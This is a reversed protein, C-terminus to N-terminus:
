QYGFTVAYDCLADSFDGQVGEPLPDDLSAPKARYPRLAPSKLFGPDNGYRARNPGECAFPSAEPHMMRAICEDDGRLGLWETIAGLTSVPEALLTEGQIRMWRAAPLGDLFQVIRRHPRLWARDPDIGFAMPQGDAQRIYRQLGVMSHCTAWPHRTLHLYDAAPFAEHIRELAHEEIVYIPSKDVLRRQGAWDMLDRYVGATAAEEQENLWRDAAAIDADAQGGLGLQAVARLLGHRLRPRRRHWARLEALTEGALLNVEPLGCLDPHQGIMGCAVSTFSRPPALIFLPDPM